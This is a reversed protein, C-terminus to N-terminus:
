KDSDGTEDPTEVEDVAEATDDETEVSIPAESAFLEVQISGLSTELSVELRPNEAHAPRVSGLAIWALGSM